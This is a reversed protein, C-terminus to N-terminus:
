NAPSTPISYIMEFKEKEVGDECHSVESDGVDEIVLKGNHTLFHIFDIHYNTKLYTQQLNM